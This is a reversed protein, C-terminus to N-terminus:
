KIGSLRKLDQINPLLERVTEQVEAFSKQMERYDAPTVPVNERLSDITLPQYEAQKYWKFEWDNIKINTLYQLDQILELILKPMDSRRQMELFVLYQGDRVEGTSIDADLIWDYGSELFSVLDVAPERRKVKFSLVSVADPKGMKSAYEDFHIKNSILYDLDGAVSGENIKSVPM